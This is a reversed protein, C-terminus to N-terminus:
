RVLYTVGDFEVETYDVRLNDATADWDIVIYSPLDRPLDGIDACLERCYETFYSERILAEGHLWDECYGEAEEQLSLLAQYDTVDTNCRQANLWDEFSLSGDYDGVAVEGNYTAQLESELEAIRIIVHGSDIIDSSNSVTRVM